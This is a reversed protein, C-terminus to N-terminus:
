LNLLRFFESLKLNRAECIKMITILGITYNKDSKISRVTKEDIDHDNAFVSQNKSKSIWESSIYDVIKRNKEKM